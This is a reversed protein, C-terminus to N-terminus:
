YDTFFNILEGFIGDLTGGGSAPLIILVGSSTYQANIRLEPIRVRAEFPKGADSLRFLFM